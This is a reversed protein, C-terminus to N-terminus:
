QNSRQSVIDNSTFLAFIAESINFPSILYSIQSQLKIINEMNPPFNATLMATLHHLSYRMYFYVYKQNEAFTSIQIERYKNISVM